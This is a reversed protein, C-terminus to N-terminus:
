LEARIFGYDMLDSHRNQPHLIASIYDINETPSRFACISSPSTCINWIKWLFWRESVLQFMKKSKSLFWCSFKLWVNIFIPISFLVRREIILSETRFTLSHSFSLSDYDLRKYKSLKQVVFKTRQDSAGLSLSFKLWFIRLIVQCVASLGTWRIILHSGTCEVQPNRILAVASFM